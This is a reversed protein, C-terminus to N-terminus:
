RMLRSLPPRQLRSRLFRMVKSRAMRMNHITLIISKAHSHRHIAMRTVHGLALILWMHKKKLYHEKASSTLRELCSKVLSSLTADSFSWAFASPITIRVRRYITKIFKERGTNNPIWCHTIYQTPNASNAITSPLDFIGSLLPHGSYDQGDEQIHIIASLTPQGCHDLVSSSVNIAPSLVPSDCIYGLENDCWPPPIFQQGIHYSFSDPDYYPLLQNTANGGYGGNSPLLLTPFCAPDLPDQKNIPVQSSTDIANYYSQISLPPPHFWLPNYKELVSAPVQTTDRVHTPVRTNDVEIENYYSEIPLPPLHYFRRDYKELGIPSTTASTTPTPQYQM